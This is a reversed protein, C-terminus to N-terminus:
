EQQNPNAVALYERMKNEKKEIRGMPNEFFRPSGPAKTRSGSVIAVLRTLRINYM